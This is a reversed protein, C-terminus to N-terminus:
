SRRGGILAKGTRPQEEDDHGEEDTAESQTAAGPLLDEFIAVDGRGLGTATWVIQEGDLVVEFSLFPCCAAERRVLDLVWERVGPRDAFRFSSEEDTSARAVLGHEFLRRYEALRQEITDPAGNLDCAIPAGPTAAIALLMKM